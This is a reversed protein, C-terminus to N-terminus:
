CREVGRRILRPEPGEAPEDSTLNRL